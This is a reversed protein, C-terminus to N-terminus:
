LRSQLCLYIPQMFEPYSNDFSNLGRELRIAELKAYIAQAKIKAQEKEAQNLHHATPILMSTFLSIWDKRREAVYLWAQSTILPSRNSPDVKKNLSYMNFYHGHLLAIPASYGSIVAETAYQVFQAQLEHSKMMYMSKEHILKNAMILNAKGDLQKALAELAELEYTEYDDYIWNISGDSYPNNQNIWHGRAKNWDDSLYQDESSLHEREFSKTQKCYDKPEPNLSTDIPQQSILEDNFRNKDKFILNKSNAQQDKLQTIKPANAVELRDTLLRDIILVILILLLALLLRRLNSIEPL